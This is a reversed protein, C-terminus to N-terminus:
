RGREDLRVMLALWEKQTVGTRGFDEAHYRDPGHWDSGGTVLLNQCDVYEALQTRLEPTNFPHIVEIGDIGGGVLITLLETIAEASTESVITGPHALVAIAGCTHLLSVADLPTLAWSGYPVYCAGGKVTLQRARPPPVQHVITLAQAVDYTVFCPNQLHRRGKAIEAWRIRSFGQQQCLEVMRQLRETYGRRTAALGRELAEVDFRQSYGLIHVESGQWLTSIEIGPVVALALRRAEATIEAIGWMGNHDTLSLGRLGRRAAAQVVAAATLDGDSYRSHLHLDYLLPAAM